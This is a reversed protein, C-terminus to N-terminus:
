QQKCIDWTHHKHTIDIYYISDGQLLRHLSAVQYLKRFTHLPMTIIIKYNYYISITAPAYKSRGGPAGIFMNRGSENPRHLKYRCGLGIKRPLLFEEGTSLDLMKYPKTPEKTEKIM